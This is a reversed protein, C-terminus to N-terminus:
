NLISHQLPVFFTFIHYKVIVPPTDAQVLGKNCFEIKKLFM